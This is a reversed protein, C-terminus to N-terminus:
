RMIIKSIENRIEDIVDEYEAFLIALLAYVYEPPLPTGCVNVSELKKKGDEDITTTVSIEYGHPRYTREGEIYVIFNKSESKSKYEYKKIKM